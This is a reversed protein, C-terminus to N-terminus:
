KKELVAKVDDETIRTAPKDLKASLWSLITPTYPPKGNKILERMRADRRAQENRKREGNLMRSERMDAQRRERRKRRTGM